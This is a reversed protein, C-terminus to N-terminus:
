ESEFPDNNIFKVVHSDAPLNIRKQMLDCIERVFMLWSHTDFRLFLEDEPKVDERSDYFDQCYMRDGEDVVLVDYVVGHVYENHRGLTISTIWGNTGTVQTVYSDGIMVPTRNRSTFLTLDLVWEGKEKDKIFFTTNLSADGKLLEMIKDSVFGPVSFGLDKKYKEEDWSRMAMHADIASKAHNVDIHKLKGPHKCDELANVVEIDAIRVLSTNSRFVIRYSVANGNYYNLETLIERSKNIQDYGEQSWGTFVPKKDSTSLLGVIEQTARNFLVPTLQPLYKGLHRHIEPLTKADDYHAPLVAALQKEVDVTAPGFESGREKAEARALLTQFRHHNRVSTAVPGRNEILDSIEQQKNDLLWAKLVSDIQSSVSQYDFNLFTGIGALMFNTSQKIADSLRVRGQETNM